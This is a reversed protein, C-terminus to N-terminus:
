YEGKFERLTGKKVLKTLIQPITNYLPTGAFALKINQLSPRIFSKLTKAQTNLALILLVTKFVKLEDKDLKNKWTNWYNVISILESHFATVDERESFFYDWLFDPTLLYWGNHPYEKLFKVFSIQNSEDESKLFQFLTRQSSGFWRSINNSLYVTYPHLPFLRKLDELKVHEEEEVIKQIETELYYSSELKWWLEEAIERWKPSKPTIVASVLKYTTIPEMYFYIFYFRDKLKQIDEAWIKKWHEIHRHTIIILYFPVEQTLHALEQLTEIPGGIQFFGSFEDWILVIRTVLKQALLEKIWDRFEEISFKFISFGSKEFVELVAEVFDLDVVESNLKKKIDEVSTVDGLISSYEKIVADWNIKKDELKDLILQIETKPITYEKGSIKLHKLYERYARYVSEQVELLLTEARTIHEAGSKYIVLINEREILSLVRDKLYPPLNYRNFYDEIESLDDELLHKIVFAAHTKGTGYAGYIWISKRHELKEWELARITKDLVERFTSHPIYTKWLNKNTRDVEENFVAVFDRDIDIHDIYSINIM